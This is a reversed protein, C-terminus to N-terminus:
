IEFPIESCQFGAAGKHGGGGYRKAIEGTSSSILDFPIGVSESSKSSLATEALIVSASSNIAYTFSCRVDFFSYTKRSSTWVSLSQFTAHRERLSSFIESKIVPLLELSREFSNVLSSDPLYTENQM